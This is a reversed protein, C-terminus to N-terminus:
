KLHLGWSHVVGFLFFLQMFAWFVFFAKTWRPYDRRMLIWALVLPALLLGLLFLASRLRESITVQSGANM